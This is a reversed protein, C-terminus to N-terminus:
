NGSLSAYLQNLQPLFHAKAQARRLKFAETLLGLDQFQRLEVAVAKPRELSNFKLEKAKAEFARLVAQKVEKRQALQDPTPGIIGQDAAFKLLGKEEFNVVAVVSNMLPDGYVFVGTIYPSSQKYGNELKEPAIYEGQSLKFMNKKRDVIRMRLEPGLLEGVDGTMLWGDETFSEASLSPALYYGPSVNPGRVWIEGRPRANGEEDRDTSLYRMDPIDVLKFENHVAPGGVHGTVRDFQHSIFELAAGETQGYGEVIPCCFVCKLAELVDPSIPASGSLMMRVRGGLAAQAKRFVLRDYLCHTYLGESVLNRRKVKLGSEFLLRAARGKGKVAQVIGDYVKNFLRPVSVFFTPRFVRLDERLKLVDGSFLALRGKQSLVFNVIVRELVHAMPLYSLYLDEDNVEGLQLEAHRTCSVMNRHTLVAGKPVGTTGSTYCVCYVSEPKPTVWPRINKAGEAKLQDLTLIRIGNEEALAGLDGQVAWPDLVLLTKLFRLGPKEARTKLLASLHNATLACIEMKTQEFIFETAAEGLTDYIPVVTFGYFGCAFDLQLYELSNRAYIGVFKLPGLGGEENEAVLGMNIIGSGVRESEERVVGNEFWEIHDTVAGESSTQRRGFGICASRELFRWKYIDHLTSVKSLQWLDKGVSFPHRYIHTENPKKDDNKLCVAYVSSFQSSPETM